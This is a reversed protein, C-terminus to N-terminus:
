AIISNRKKIKEIGLKQSKGPKNNERRHKLPVASRNLEANFQSIESDTELKSRFQRDLVTDSSPVM